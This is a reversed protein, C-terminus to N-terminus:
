RCWCCRWALPIFSENSLLGGTLQSQNGGRFARSGWGRIVLAIVHVMLLVIAPYRSRLREARGRWLEGATALIYLAAIFSATTTQLSGAARFDPAQCALLWVVVGASAVM